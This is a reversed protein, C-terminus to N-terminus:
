PSAAPVAIATVRGSMTGPGLHRVEIAEVLEDVPDTLDQAWSPSVAFLLCAFFMPFKM